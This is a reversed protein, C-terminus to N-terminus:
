KVYRGTFFSEWLPKIVTTSFMRRAKQSSLDSYEKAAGHDSLLHKAIAILADVNDSAAGFFDGILQAVEYTQQGPFMPGNGLKPGVALIPIGTMWAEIFGLTYSAPYTGTYLYLRNDRLIQRQEEYSVLGGGMKGLNDNGPGYVTLPIKAGVQRITEYGCFEGRQRLSQTFNVAKPNRGNWGLYEDPDKGFRIMMDKGINEAITDEMPSYRVVEMGNLRFQLLQREVHPISQGISRWVVRGGRNMFDFLVAQNNLLFDPVHMVMVMDMGELMEPHLEKGYRTALEIFHPNYPLSPLGPRKRNEDGGPHTYAGLSYVEHGLESFMKLEDYELIEHCSMYLIKM